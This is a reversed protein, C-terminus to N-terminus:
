GKGGEAARLVRRVYWMTPGDRLVGVVGQRYSAITLQLREAEFASPDIMRSARFFRLSADQLIDAAIRASDEAILPNYEGFARARAAHFRENLQFRGISIGDDGIAGDQEDSETLAIGRLLAAPTAYGDYLSSERHAHWAAAPPVAYLTSGTLVAAAALAILLRIV